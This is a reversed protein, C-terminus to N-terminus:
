ESQIKFYESSMPGAQIKYLGDPINSPITVSYSGTNEINYFRDALSVSVGEKELAKNVLDMEQILQPGGEWRITYTKGKVLTDRSTPFIFVNRGTQNELSLEVNDYTNGLSKIFFVLGMLVFILFM